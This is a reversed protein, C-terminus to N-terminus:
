SDSEFNNLNIPYGRVSVLNKQVDQTQIDTHGQSFCQSSVKKILMNM